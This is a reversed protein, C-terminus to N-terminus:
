GLGFYNKSAADIATYGDRGKFVAENQTVSLWQMWTLEGQVTATDFLATKPMLLIGNVLGHMTTGRAGPADGNSPLATTAIQGRAANVLPAPLVTVAESVLPM